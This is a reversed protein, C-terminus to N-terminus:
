FEETIEKKVDKEFTVTEKSQGESLGLHNLISKVRHEDIEKNDIENLGQERTIHGLRVEWATPIAYNHYGRKKLHVYTGVDNIMCNTSCSGVNEPKKWFPIKSQITELIQEKRVDDFRFYDILLTKEFASEDFLSQDKILRVMENDTSHYYRRLEKLYFEIQEDNYINQKFIDHLRLEMIQGRSLGNIIVPIKYRIAAETSRANLGRWCGFCVSDKEKISKVFVQNMLKKEMGEIRYEVNFFNCTNQINEYCVPSIYGNDFTLALVKLGMELLTLLVYTSDKGGSYLLLCDYPSDSNQRVEKFLHVLDEKTKFYGNYREHNKEFDQCVNCLGDKNFSTGPVNESIICRTCIKYNGIQTANLINDM